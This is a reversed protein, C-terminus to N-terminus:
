RGPKPAPGLQVRIPEGATTVGVLVYGDVGEREIREFKPQAHGWPSPQHELEETM